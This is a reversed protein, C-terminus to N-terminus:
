SAGGEAALRVISAGFKPGWERAQVVFLGCLPVRSWAAMAQAKIMIGTMSTEPTGMIADVHNTLAQAADSERKQAARLGSALRVRDCEAEYGKAIALQKKYSQVRKRLEARRAESRIRKGALDRECCDLWFAIDKSSEVRLPGAEGPRTLDTGM